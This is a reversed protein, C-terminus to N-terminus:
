RILAWVLNEPIGCVQSRSSGIWMAPLGVMGFLNCPSKSIRDCQGLFPFTFSGLGSAIAQFPIVTLSIVIRRVLDAHAPQPALSRWIPANEEFAPVHDPFSCVESILGDSFPWSFPLVVSEVALLQMRPHDLTPPLIAVPASGLLGSCERAGGRRDIGFHSCSVPISWPCGHRPAAM